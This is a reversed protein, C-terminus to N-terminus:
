LTSAPKMTNTKDAAATTVWQRPWFVEMPTRRDDIIAKPLKTTSYSELVIYAVKLSGGIVM